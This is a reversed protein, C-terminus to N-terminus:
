LHITAVYTRVRPVYRHIVRFMDRASGTVAELKDRKLEEASNIRPVACPQCAPRITLLYHLSRVFRSM